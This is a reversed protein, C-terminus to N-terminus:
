QSFPLSSWPSGMDWLSGSQWDMDFDFSDFRLDACGYDLQASVPLSTSSPSPMQQFAVGTDSMTELYTRTPQNLDSTEQRAFHKYYLDLFRQACASKATQRSEKGLHVKLLMIAGYMTLPCWPEGYFCRLYRDETFPLCQELLDITSEAYDAAINTSGRPQLLTLRTLSLAAVLLDERLSSIGQVGFSALKRNMLLIDRSTHYSIIESLTFRSSAGQLYPRHIALICEKLQFKLLASVLLSNVPDIGDTGDEESWSPLSDLAETLTHTYRLVDDYPLAKAFGTSFLRKSIELRLTWSCSSLAQYSSDTKRSPSNHTPIVESTPSLEEDNINEPAPINSEINHLLTPLEYEFSNQLDLERLVAWIRKKIEGVYPNYSASSPDPDCHMRDLIANQILSGTEIWFKKKRITNTRKALYVLCAVQYYILKRGKMTQQTLWADCASIWKPPMGRFQTASPSSSIPTSVSMIALVLAVMGPHRPREPEWLFYYEKRFTPIHIIRHLQEIHNLYFSVMTDTDDKPPLLDELTRTMVSTASTEFIVKSKRLSVGRPKFWEGATERIFPFLQPMEDFFRFLTHQSYYGRPSREQLGTIENGTNPGSLALVEGSQRLAQDSPHDRLTEDTSDRPNNDCQRESKSLLGKLQAVEARLDRIQSASQQLATKQAQTSDDSVPIPRGTEFSCQEPRGSRICRQCPLGRDCSLKKKRCEGCSLRLRKARSRKATVAGKGASSTLQAGNSDVSGSTLNPAPPQGNGGTSCDSGPPIDELNGPM